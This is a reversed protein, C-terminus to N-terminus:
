VIRISDVVGVIVGEQSGGHQGGRHLFDQQRRRRWWWRWRGGLVSRQLGDVHRMGLRLADRLGRSWVVVQVVLRGGAVRVPRLTNRRVDGVVAFRVLM